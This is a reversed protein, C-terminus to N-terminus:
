ELIECWKMRSQSVWKGFVKKSIKCTMKLKWSFLLQMRFSSAQHGPFVRHLLYTPLFYKQPYHLNRCILVCIRLTRSVVNCTFMVNLKKWFYNNRKFLSLKLRSTCLIKHFSSEWLIFINVPFSLYLYSKEKEIGYKPMWKCSNVLYYCFHIM